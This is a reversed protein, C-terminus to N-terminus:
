SYIRPGAPATPPLSQDPRSTPFLCHAATAICQFVPGLGHWLPPPEDEDWPLLYGCHLSVETGSWSLPADLDFDLDDSPQLARTRLFEFGDCQANYEETVLDALFM